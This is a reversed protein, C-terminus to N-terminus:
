PTCDTVQNYIRSSITTQFDVSLTKGTRGEKEFLVYITVKPHFRTSGFEFNNQDYPDTSPTMFVNFDAVSIEESNLDIYNSHSAVDETQQLELRSMQVKQDSEDYKIRTKTLGDKSILNVSDDKVNFVGGSACYDVMGNRLDDTLSDFVTRAESYLIRFENAEHQARVISTYSNMLIGTFVIFITMAIMLEILTFGRKIKKCLEM